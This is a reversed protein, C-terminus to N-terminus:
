HLLSIVFLRNEETTSFNLQFKVFKKVIDCLPALLADSSLKRVEWINLSTSNQIVPLKSLYMKYEIHILGKIQHLESIQAVTGNRLLVTHNPHTVSLIMGQYNIKLIKNKRKVFIKLEKQKEIVETPFNEQELCRRAYQAVLHKPSRLLSTMKGLYSEFSFASIENLNCRTNEVDDSIHILNHVNMCVFTSGYVDSAEDVFKRLNHRAEAVYPLANKESLLRCSISFLLFHEYMEKSVLKKLLFPGAYLAFFKFEVAKYKTYDNVPRMKRPFEDPIDQQIQISRRQLEAKLAPILRNKHKSTSSMLFELIRKTCGLYLLHMPDLIFQDVMNIQPEIMALLSPSTHYAPDKFERFGTDSKREANSQLFVTVGNIKQGVM